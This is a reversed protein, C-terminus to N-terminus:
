RRTWNLCLNLNNSLISYELLKKQRSVFLAVLLLSAFVESGLGTTPALILSLVGDKVSNLKKLIYENLADSFGCM